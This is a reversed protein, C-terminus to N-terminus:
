KAKEAEAKKAEADAQAADYEALRAQLSAKLEDITKM